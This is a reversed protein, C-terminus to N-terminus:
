SGEETGPPQCKLEVFTAMLKSRSAENSVWHKWSLQNLKRLMPKYFPDGLKIEIIGWFRGHKARRTDNYNLIIPMGIDLNNEKM